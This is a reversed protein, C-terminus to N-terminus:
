VKFKRHMFARFESMFRDRHEAFIQEDIDFTIKDALAHCVTCLSFTVNNKNGKGYHRRPLPHHEAVEAMRKCRECKGIRPM